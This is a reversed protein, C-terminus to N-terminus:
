IWFIQFNVLIITQCTIMNEPYISDTEMLESITEIHVQPGSLISWIRFWVVAFLKRPWFIKGGFRRRLPGIKLPVLKDPSKDCEQPFSQFCLMKMIKSHVLSLESWKTSVAILVTCILRKWDLYFWWILMKSYILMLKQVILEWIRIIMWIFLKREM